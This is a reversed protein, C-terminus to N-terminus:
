HTVDMKNTKESLVKAHYIRSKVSYNPPPSHTRYQRTDTLNLHRYEECVRAVSEGSELKEILNTREMKRGRHILKFFNVCFLGFM